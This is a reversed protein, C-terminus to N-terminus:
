CNRKKGDDNFLLLTNKGINLKNYSFIFYLRLPIKSIFFTYKIYDKIIQLLLFRFVFLFFDSPKLALFAM